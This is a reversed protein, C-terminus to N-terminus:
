ELVILSRALRDMSAVVVTDDNRVYRILDTLGQRAERSRGSVQDLFEYNVDGIAIGQRDPDQDLSSVRVYSVRQGIQKAM